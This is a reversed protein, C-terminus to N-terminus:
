KDDRIRGGARIVCNGLLDKALTENWNKFYLPLLAELRRRLMADDTVADSKLLAIM